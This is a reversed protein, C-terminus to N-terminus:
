LCMNLSAWVFVRLCLFMCLCLYSSVCVFVCLFVSAHVCMCVYLRMIPRNLLCYFTQCPSCTLMVGSWVVAVHNRYFPSLSLSLSCTLCFSLSGLKHAVSLATIIGVCHCRLFILLLANSMIAFFNNSQPYIIARAVFPARQLLPASTNVIRKYIYPWTQKCETTSQKTIEESIRSYLQHYIQSTFSNLKTSKM